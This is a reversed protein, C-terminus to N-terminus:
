HIAGNEHEINTDYDIEKEGLNFHKSKEVISFGEITETLTTGNDFVAEYKLAPGPVDVYKAAGNDFGSQKSYETIRIDDMFKKAETKTYCRGVITKAKRIIKGAKDIYTIHAMLLYQAKTAREKSKAKQEDSQLEKQM